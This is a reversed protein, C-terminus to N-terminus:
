EIYIKEDNGVYANREGAAHSALTLKEGLEGLGRDWFGAGHRNRMLWFDHGANEEDSYGSNNYEPMKNQEFFERCEKEAQAVSEPAIDHISYNRDLPEDYGEHESDMSVVSSWLAAILYHKTIKSAESIKM